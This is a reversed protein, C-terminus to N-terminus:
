PARTEWIAVLRRIDDRMAALNEEIRGMQVAQAQSAMLAEGIKGDIRTVERQMQGDLRTLERQGQADIRAIDRGQTQVEAWLFTGAV